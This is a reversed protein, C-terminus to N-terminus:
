ARVGTLKEYLEVHLAGISPWDRGSMKPADGRPQKLALLFGELDAPGVPGEFTRVWEEGVEEQLELIAPVAPALIPRNRSLALLAVGSNTMAAYPLVVGAARSIEENLEDDDFYRFCLSAREDAAALEHLLNSLASNTPQGIVRLRMRTQVNKFAHLLSDVSKYPRISGFFLLVDEQETRGGSGEWPYMGHPIVINLTKTMGPRDLGASTRNLHVRADASSTFARLAITTCRSALQEHPSDNHVTWVLAVGGLRVRICLLSLLFTKLGARVSSKSFVLAEPWHVHLVDYRGFLATAWSFRRIRVRPSVSEILLRSYPNPM